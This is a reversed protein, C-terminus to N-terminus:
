IVIGADPNPYIGSKLMSLGIVSDHVDCGYKCDNLVSVGYGDESYDLWKHACVEFKAFDWSTNSHTPRKVNGYQIEYIAENAHIDVPFYTRLLIQSEKWDIENRIDIQYLDKYFYLYQVIVSNLYPRELRIAGRVPENETVTISSLEDVPWSKEKYYNNIDWADYNHPRDEYSIIRNGCEGPMLIERKAIKDYISTFQGNENLEIHFYPTEVLKETVFFEEKNESTKASEKVEYTNYGKSVSGDAVGVWGEEAKQLVVPSAQAEDFLAVLVPEKVSDPIFTEPLIIPAPQSVSNPNFIVVSGEKTSVADAIKELTDETMQNNKALLKEYEEKSDEYVEKISSGPLIDHFQNRLTVEWSDRLEQKPYASDTLVKAVREKIQEYIDPANKKVYKYLQPQSSMFIYEPYQKMLELVTSFSRVAKDETTKLTWLRACDIHTHGVCCILPNEHGCKKQYFNVTMYEQAAKLSEFFLPSHIQRLDLLNLSENLCQIIDIYEASDKPLLRFNEGPVAHETLLIERHNVDLGHRKKENVYALFQPNLADWEGEKGTRLEYVVTRDKWNELITIETEFYYIERHGGWINKTDLVDWERTDACGENELRCDTKLM